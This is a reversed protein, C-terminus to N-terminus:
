DPVTASPYPEQLWDSTEGAANVARIIYYYTTGATVDTHTFSVGTLNDGGLPQWDALGDWWMMLEYRVAGALAAWRLEVAGAAAQVTLAPATLEQTQPTPTPTPTPTPQLEQAQQQEPEAIASPYPEQLWDSTEGAANVARITYYYTTGAALDTHTYSAGTLNDGGLPQWDTVGDWWMMLEYRVAGAVVEWRLEVAGAAAQATLTPVSLEQAQSAPTPTPTPRLTQAQVELAKQASEQQGVEQQSPPDICANIGELTGTVRSWRTQMYRQENAKSEDVTMPAAGTGTDEGLAELVRNWRLVHSADHAHADRWGTVEAVSIANAPLHPACREMLTQASAQAVTVTFADEAAGAKGDAATVTITATGRAQANVTLSSQDAAVSVTAVAENSSAATVTLADNDADSFTGTLSVTQTGSENAITVDAIAASVTPARNGELEWLAKAVPVWRTGWDQDALAQAEAATMPTISADAVTEGFALLARDWRDTHSKYDVWEPDNRWEYMQAILAAYKKVVSVDFTDSVRNGDADQATVTITATGEAVGAVTLKSGDSAVTVTAKSDDSSASTVTLTDGDADSFVGSLSVDQTAEVELGSVDALSAAVVPAAKVTVAFTDEVTGGNGDDATVTITATGRAKAAVTLTSQDSSVSVTAKTEDSSVATVTLADNDADSFVGSLSAQHAGSENAITADAIANSVTPPSNPTAQQQQDDDGRPTTHDGKVRVWQSSQPSQEDHRGGIYSRVFVGTAVDNKLGTIVYSTVGGAVTIGDNRGVNRPDKPNAWVGPEQSWRLAHRIEGDAVGDRPNVRWSVTLSGDGPVVQIDWPETGEPPTPEPPAEDNDAITVTATGAGDPDVAWGARVPAVTVTFTEDDEHLDDDVTPVAINLRTAGGPVTVPTTITGVDASGATGYAATVTFELGAELAEQSLSLTLRAVQGEVVRASPSLSYTRPPPDINLFYTKVVGGDTVEINVGTNPTHADLEIAHSPQTFAVAQLPSGVKGVKVASGQYAPFVKVKAHTTHAYKVGKNPDLYPFVGPLQVGYGYAAPRAPQWQRFGDVVPDGDYHVVIAPISLTARPRDMGLKVQRGASLELGSNQWRAQPRFAPGISFKAPRVTGVSLTFGPPVSPYMTLVLEGQATLYLERVTYETTSLQSLSVRTVTFRDSTLAAGCEAGSVGNHCGLRGDGLSRVTLTPTWADLTPQAVVKIILMRDSNRVGDSARVTVEYVNDGNSDAPMDFDTAEKFSLAQSVANTNDTDAALEFADADPGRLSLTVASGDPDSAAFTALDNPTTTRDNDLDIETRGETQAIIEGDPVSAGFTPKEDVNVVQIHVNTAVTVQPDMAAGTNNASSDYARVQVTYSTRAEYDLNAAPALRLQGTANDILFRPNRWSISADAGRITYTLIDGDPDRATIPGGINGRTNEHVWITVANSPFRPVRNRKPDRYRQVPRPSTYRVTKEPGLVHYNDDNSDYSARVRYTAEVTIRHGVDAPQVPSYTRENADKTNGNRDTITLILTNGRYWKWTVDAIPIVNGRTGAEPDTVRAELGAREQFQQWEVTEPLPVSISPDGTGNLGFSVKAGPGGPPGVGEVPPGSLLLLGLAIALPLLPSLRPLTARMLIPIGRCLTPRNRACGGEDPRTKSSNGRTNFM